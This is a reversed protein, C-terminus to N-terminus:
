MSANFNYGKRENQIGDGLADEDDGRGGSKGSCSGDDIDVGGRCNVGMSLDMEGKM